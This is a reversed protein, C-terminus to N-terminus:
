EKISKSDLLGEKVDLDKTGLKKSNSNKNIVEFELSKKDVCCVFKLVALAETISSLYM